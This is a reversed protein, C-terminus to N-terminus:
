LQDYRLSVGLFFLKLCNAIFNFSKKCKNYKVSALPILNLKFLLQKLILHKTNWLIILICKQKKYYQPCCLFYSIKSVAWRKHYYLLLKVIGYYEYINTYM